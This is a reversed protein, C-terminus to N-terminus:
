AKMKNYLSIILRNHVSHLFLIFPNKTYRRIVRAEEDFQRVYDSGGKSSPHIRFSSLTDPLIGPPYRRLLRLWYDYDFTYGLRRDLLGIEEFAKKRWFTSPQAIPNALLLIVSLPLLRLLKKYMRVWRQIERGKENVIRCDGTVWMVDPHKQFYAAVAAFTGAEYYDDSNIYGIIDGNAIRMGKNIAAAQGADKRSQWFVTKRKYTRLISITGDTSGGDIVIYQLDPYHDRLVSDITERIFKAQNFSPTVISIKM